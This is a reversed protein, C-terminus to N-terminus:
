PSSLIRNIYGIDHDESTAQRWEEETPIPITTTKNIHRAHVMVTPIENNDKLQKTETYGQHMHVPINDAKIEAEKLAIMLSAMGHKGPVVRSRIMAVEQRLSSIQEM